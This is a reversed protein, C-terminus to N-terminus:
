SQYWAGGGPVPNITLWGYPNAITLETLGDCLEGSTFTIRIPNADADGKLDKILVPFPYVMTSAVPAVAYSASAITKNFLIATATTLIAYPSALTAGATIVTRFSYPYSSFFGSLALTTVQFNNGEEANGPSVIEMVEDGTLTLDLVQLSTLRGDVPIFTASAM